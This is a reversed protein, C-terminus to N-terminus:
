TPWAWLQRISLRRSVAKAKAFPLPTRRRETIDVFTVVVGDVVNDVSRYPRMRMTFARDVGQLEVEREVVTLERLVADVDRRLDDYAIVSDIETVPRSM